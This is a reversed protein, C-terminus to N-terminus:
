GVQPGPYCELQLHQSMAAYRQLAIHSIQM